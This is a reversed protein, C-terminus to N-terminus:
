SLVSQVVADLGVGGAMAQRLRQSAELQVQREPHEHTALRLAADVIAEPQAASQFMEPWPGPALVLNPPATQRLRVLSRGIMWTLPPARFVVVQPTGILATELTATGNCVLAVRAGAVATQVRDVWEIPLDDFCAEAQHRDLTPAVPVRFTVEPHREIMRQACSRLLPGVYGLEAPRSGPLLAVPGDVESDVPQCDQAIPNGVYHCNLGRQLWWDAEFPLIVFLEDYAKRASALRWGGWAWLKPPIFGIVRIGHRRLAKGLPLHFGSYDVLIATRVGRQLAREVLLDRQKRLTRYTGILNSFGFAGEARCVVEVGAAELCPGVKGLCPQNPGLAQILAVAQRDGSAEGVSILIPATM